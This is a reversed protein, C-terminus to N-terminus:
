APPLRLFGQSMNLLSLGSRLRYLGEDASCYRRVGGGCASGGVLRDARILLETEWPEADWVGAWVFRCRGISIARYALVSLITM